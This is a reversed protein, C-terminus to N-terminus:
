RLRALSTEMTVVETTNVIQFVINVTVDNYEPMSKADVSIIRARPEYNEIAIIIQKEIRKETFYDALEFFMSRLDAGFDPQFPREGRNTQLLNKVSQRVAAADTKKYVDGSPRNLFLADLDSYVVDRSTTLAANNLNGDQTSLRKIAM